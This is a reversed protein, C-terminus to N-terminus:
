IRFGVMKDDSIILGIVQILVNPCMNRINICITRDRFDVTNKIYPTQVGWGIQIWCISRKHTCSSNM